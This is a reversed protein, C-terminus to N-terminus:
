NLRGGGGGGDGGGNNRFIYVCTRGELGGAPQLQGARTWTM